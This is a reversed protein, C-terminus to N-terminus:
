RPKPAAVQMGGNLQGPVSVPSKDTACKARIFDDAWHFFDREQCDRLLMSPIARRREPCRMLRIVRQADIRDSEHRHATRTLLCDLVSAHAISHPCIARPIPIIAPLLLSGPQPYLSRPLPCRLM